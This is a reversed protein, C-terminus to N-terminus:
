GTMTTITTSTITSLLNQSNLMLLRSSAYFLFLMRKVSAPSSEVTLLVAMVADAVGDNMMNGEWQLEVERTRPHYRVIVCGLVLYTQPKEMPIEEDAAEVKVHQKSGNIEAERDEEKTDNGIEEIAGFTGELAWKILDMSASSLTIHQRCTITTTALGAYERLDDPAMLSLDFGNQVLVGAMLPGEEQETPITMQALKGVVKAIKDKRFPIRVEECNAPTYVKVKVTKDANLSLLKSKLRMM